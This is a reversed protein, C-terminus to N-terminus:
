IRQELNVFIYMNKFAMFIFRGGGGDKKESRTTRQPTVKKYPFM